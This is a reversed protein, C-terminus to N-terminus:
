QETSTKSLLPVTASKAWYPVKEVVEWKTDGATLRTLTWEGRYYNGRSNFYVVPTYRTRDGDLRCKAVRIFTPWSEPKTYKAKVALLDDPAKALILSTTAIKGLDSSGHIDEIEPVLARDRRPGNTSKRLHVILIIPVGTALAIDRMRQAAQKQQANEQGEKTDVYHLHDVVV